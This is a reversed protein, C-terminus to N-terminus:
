AAPQRAPPVMVTLAKPMVRLRAPTRGGADGDVHLWVPPDSVIEVSRARFHLVGPYGAHRGRLLALVQGATRWLPGSKFLWLDLWGDDVVAGPAACLGYTYRGANAVLALWAEAELMVQATTVRLRSPRYTALLQLGRALVSPSLMRKNRAPVVSEVVAGDFGVGAMQAFPKGNATGLDILRPRGSVAVRIAPRLGRPIQLEGALANLTGAPLIALPFSTGVLAPLIANVTGDGGVAIVRTDAPSRGRLMHRLAAAAAEPGTALVEEVEMGAAGLLRTISELRAPHVGSANRNAVLLGRM